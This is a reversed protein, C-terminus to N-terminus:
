PRPAVSDDQLLPRGPADPARAARRFVDPVDLHSQGPPRLEHHLGAAALAREIAPVWEPSHIEMIVTQVRGLVRPTQAFAQTEAGEIDVKLVDIVECSERDLLDDLTLTEVRKQASSGDGPRVLHHRVSAGLSLMARGTSGAIAAEVIQASTGELNRKLLGRNAEDPEVALVRCHPSHMAFYAAALGINAGLDVVTAGPRLPLAARYVEKLFIEYFTFTDWANARLHLRRRGDPCAITVSRERGSRLAPVYREIFGRALTWWIVILGTPSAALQRSRKWATPIRHLHLGAIVRRM